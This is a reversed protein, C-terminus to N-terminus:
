RRPNSDPRRPRVRFLTLLVAYVGMGDVVLVALAFIRNLHALYPRLFLLTGTMIGAAVLIKLVAPLTGAFGLPGNKRRAFVTLLACGFFACLVTSAALGVHRIEEPLTAVALVNLAANLCVSAVSVHLPTKMDNQAQFWPILSKQLGFFGLGLAYM